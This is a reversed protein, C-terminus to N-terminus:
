KCPNAYNNRKNMWYIGHAPRRLVEPREKVGERLRVHCCHGRAHVVVAGGAVFDREVPFGSEISSDHMHVKLNAIIDSSLYSNLSARRNVCFFRKWLILLRGSPHVPAVIAICSLYLVLILSASWSIRLIRNLYVKELWHKSLHYRLNVTLQVLPGKELWM